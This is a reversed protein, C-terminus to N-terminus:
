NQSDSLKIHNDFLDLTEITILMLKGIKKSENYIQNRVESEIKKNKQVCNLNFIYALMKKDFESLLETLLIKSREIIEEENKFLSGLINKINDMEEDTRTHRPLFMNRCDIGLMGWEVIIHLICIDYDNNTNKYVGQDREVWIEDIYYFNNRYAIEAKYIEQGSL